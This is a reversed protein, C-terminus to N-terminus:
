LCIFLFNIVKDVEYSVTQLAFKNFYLLFYECHHVFGQWTVEHWLYARFWGLADSTVEYCQLRNGTSAENQKIVPWAVEPVLYVTSKLELVTM